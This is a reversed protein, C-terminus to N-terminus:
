KSATEGTFKHKDLLTATTLGRQYDVARNHDKSVELHAKFDDIYEM